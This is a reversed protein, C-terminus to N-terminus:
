KGQRVLERFDAMLQRTLPGPQGSGIARGDIRTVPIVEAATGTLFCEDAAYIDYRTLDIERLPLNRRAILEMAVQRTVGELNGAALPPTEVKGNRLLFVNDGTCEAVFGLHNYMVAEHVGADLAEIKALINNLYNLSKIRPSVANPHNRVVSSSIIAMGQEYLDRPYLEIQDAIIFVSPCATRRPSLGLYGVGRTVVLRIYCDTLGNARMTEYIADAMEARTMPLALRIALASDELRKLHQDLRFVQGGYGRIGEFVGDGYLLGHDFVSIRAEAVPVIRGDLFIKLTPKPAFENAHGFDM